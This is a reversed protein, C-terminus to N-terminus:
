YPYVKRRLLDMINLVLKIRERRKEDISNNYEELLESYEDEFHDDGYELWVTLVKFIENWSLADRDFYAITKSM